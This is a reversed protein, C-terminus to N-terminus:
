QRRAALRITAMGTGDPQPAGMVDLVRAGIVLVDGRVVGEVLDARCTFRPQVQDMRYEGLQADLYPEDYIGIIPRPSGQAPQLEAEVAFEKTDLFADLDEWDPQLAM